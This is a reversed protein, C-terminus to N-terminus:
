PRTRYFHYDALEKIAANYRAATKPDALDLTEDTGKGFEGTPSMATNCVASALVPSHDATFSLVKFTCSDRRWQGAEQVFKVDTLLAFDTGIEAGVRFPLGAPLRVGIVAQMGHKAARDSFALTCTYSGPYSAIPEVKGSFCAKFLLVRWVDYPASPGSPAAPKQSQTQLQAMTALRSPIKGLASAFAADTQAAARISLSAIVALVLGARRLTSNIM